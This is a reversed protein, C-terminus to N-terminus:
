RNFYKNHKSGIMAGLTTTLQKSLFFHQLTPKNKQECDIKVRIIIQEENSTGYDNDRLGLNHKVNFM